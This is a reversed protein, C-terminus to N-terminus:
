LEPADRPVDERGLFGMDLDRMTMELLADYLEKRFAGPVLVAKAAPEGGADFWVYALRADDLRSVRVIGGNSCVGRGVEIREIAILGAETTDLPQWVGECGYSPYVIESREPDLRVEMPWHIDGVQIGVGHWTGGAELVPDMPAAAAAAGFAAVAAALRLM